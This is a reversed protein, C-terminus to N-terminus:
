DIERPYAPAKPELTTYKKFKTVQKYNAQLRYLKVLDYKDDIKIPPLVFRPWQHRGGGQVCDFGKRNEKPYYHQLVYILLCLCYNYYKSYTSYLM